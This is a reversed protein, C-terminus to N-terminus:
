LFEFASNTPQAGNDLDGRGICDTPRLSDAARVNSPGLGAPNDPMRPANLIHLM